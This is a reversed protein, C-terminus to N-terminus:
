VLEDTLTSWRKHSPSLLENEAELEFIRHQLEDIRRNAKLESQTKASLQSSLDECIARQISLDDQLRSLQAQVTILEDHSSEANRRHTALSKAMEDIEHDRQRLQETLRNLQASDNAESRDVQASLTTLQDHLSKVLKDHEADKISAQAALEVRERQQQQMYQQLQQSAQASTQQLSLYRESLYVIDSASAALRSESDSLKSQLEQSERQSRSLEQQLATTESGREKLQLKLQDNAAELTTLM